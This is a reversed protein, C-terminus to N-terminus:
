LDCSCFKLLAVFREILAPRFFEFARHTSYPVVARNVRQFSPLRIHSQCYRDMEPGTLYAANDDARCFEFNKPIDYLIDVKAPGPVGIHHVLGSSQDSM